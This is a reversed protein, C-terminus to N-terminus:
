VEVRAKAMEATAAMSPATQMIAKPAAPDSSSAVAATYFMVDPRQLLFRFSLNPLAGAADPETAAEASGLREPLSNIMWLVVLFSAGNLLFLPTAGILTLVLAGLLPGIIEGATWAMMHLANMTGRLTPPTLAMLRVEFAPTDATRVIGMALTLGYLLWLSPVIALLAFSGALLAMLLQTLMLLRKGPYRDVLSGAAAQIVLRPLAWLAIMGGVGLASDGLEFALAILAITNFRDGIYSGAAAALLRRAEPADRLARYRDVGDRVAARVTALPGHASAGKPPSRDM